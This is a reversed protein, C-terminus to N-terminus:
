DRPKHYSERRSANDRIKKLRDKLPKAMADLVMLRAEIDAVEGAEDDTLRDRWGM